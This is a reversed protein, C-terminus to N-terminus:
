ALTVAPHRASLMAITFDGGCHTRISDAAADLADRVLPEGVPPLGEIVLLVNTTDPTLKTREAEKWNWRRCIAGADDAYIVEGPHPARADAEGLMRVAPEDDGAVTLRVDGALRDLDEAGVPVLFRLSIANYLDVVPSIRRVSGAAARKLLSEISSLYKSPKAGFRAYTERWAAIHPHDRLPAAGIRSRAAVTDAALLEGVAPPESRNDVGRAVLTGVVVDPCLAFVERDIRFEMLPAM